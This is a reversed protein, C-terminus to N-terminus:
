PYTVGYFEPTVVIRDLAITCPKDTTNTVNLEIYGKINSCDRADHFNSYDIIGTVTCSGVTATSFHGNRYVEPANEHDVTFTFIGSSGVALGYSEHSVFGAGRLTHKKADGIRGINGNSAQYGTLNVWVMIDKGTLHYDYEFEIFAHGNKDLQYNTAKMNGIYQRADVSCLDQRNNHGAAFLVNPRTTGNYDDKLALLQNTSVSDLDWKGFAEYAFNEGFVVLRDNDRDVYNFIDSTTTFQAKNGGIAELAGRPDNTGHWLRASTTTRNPNGNSGDVAYEVIAGTAIYPQTNVPNNYADTVTVAFKEVYKATTANVEVGAYSISLATPPGSFVVINMIATLTKADGNADTFEVTIEIPLLGSLRYTQISFSKSNIADTGNFTLSPVTAGSNSADVLQGILTNQSTITVTNIDGDDVLNGLDDKLYLTFSKLLDLGMTQNGDSSSTSLIYNAPIYSDKLDYIITIAEQQAPNDEHFFKFTANLDGNNVLSQLDQPGTYNFVAKGNAGVPVVHETFSGIDTGDLVENPLSVKVNGRTYPTNTGQEFIQIEMQVNQSNQTLNIEKFNNSIVVIPVTINTDIKNFEISVLDSVTVGNNVMSLTVNTTNGDVSSVDAPAKYTFVARGSIDSKVTSASIISGYEIGSVVSISVDVNSIGIGNQNVVVASISKLEDNSNVIIPTSVNTLNYDSVIALTSFNLTIGKSVTVNNETLSLTTVTNQGDIPAINTPSQYTFEAKGTADTQVTSANTISGYGAAIISISVTKGSVGVGTASDVVYVSITEIQDGHTIAVPTTENALSFQNGGAISNFKLIINQTIITGNDDHTLQINTSTGDTPLSSPSTYSFIAYGDAGTIAKYNSVGGFKSDFPLMKVTKDSSVYGDELMQVKIEYPADVRTVELPTTANFFGSSPTPTVGGGNNPNYVVSFVRTDVSGNKTTKQTATFTYSTQTCNRDFIGSINVMASSDVGGDMHVVSPTFIPTQSLICSDTILNFNSLEIKYSSDVKKIFSVNLAFTNGTILMENAAMRVAPNETEVPTQGGNSIDDSGGGCGSLVFLGFFILVSLIYKRM